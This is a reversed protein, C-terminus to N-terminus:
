LKALWENLGETGISKLNLCQNLWTLHHLRADLIGLGDYVIRYPGFDGPQMAARNERGGAIREEHEDILLADPLGAVAYCTAIEEGDRIITVAGPPRVQIGLNKRTLEARLASMVRNRRSGLSRIRAREAKDAVHKLTQKTLRAKDGLMESPDDFHTAELPIWDTALETGKTALMELKSPDGVKPRTWFLQLVGLGLQHVLDLEEHVWRSDLAHPSDLLVMLDTDALRDRLVDQFPVGREVSATDLFVQYGRDFLEHAVQKAIQESDTRKYSVFAQRQRRTLGFNKLIDAVVREDNWELGNIKRLYDLESPVSESFRNLEEVLPIVTAGCHLVDALTQLHDAMGDFTASGGYWVGVISARRDLEDRQTVYLVRLHMKPDLDLARLADELDAEHLLSFKSANPGLVVLQYAFNTQSPDM